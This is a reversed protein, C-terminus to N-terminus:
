STNALKSSTKSAAKGSDEHFYFSFEPQCSAQLLPQTGHGAGTAQWGRRTSADALGKSSLHGHEILGAGKGPV